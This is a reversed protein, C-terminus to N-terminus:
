RDVPAEGNARYDSVKEDGMRINIANVSATVVAMLLIITRIVTDKM